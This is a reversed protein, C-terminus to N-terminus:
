QIYIRAPGTIKLDPRASRLKVPQLGQDGVAALTVRYQNDLREQLNRLFPAINVPNTFDEFYSYGGTEGTLQQLRSQAFDTVRGGRDYAGADRLYISYVMVGKKQADAIAADVYPDDMTGDNYYRDVGDTLMLVARRPAAEHSPWHQVLDSLSFYPSGNLGAIGLPLRLAGAAAPHDATFPQTMPSAGNRMYGIAVETTPPLAQIFARLEPFHISLTSTPSSDDLLIFLQMRALDGTLRELGTVPAPIKGQVVTLDAPTVDPFALPGAPGGGHAPLVTIVMPTPVEAVDRTSASIWPAVATLAAAVTALQFCPGIKM